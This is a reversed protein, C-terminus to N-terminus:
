HFVDFKRRRPQLYRMLLTGSRKRPQMQMPLRSSFTFNVCYRQTGKFFLSVVHGKFQRLMEKQTPTISQPTCFTERCSTVRQM